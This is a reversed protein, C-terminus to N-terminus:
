RWGTGSSWGRRQAKKLAKRQAKASKNMAKRQQKSYKQMDKQAKRAAKRYARTQQTSTDPPTADAPVICSLSLFAVSVCAALRRM